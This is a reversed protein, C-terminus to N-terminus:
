GEREIADLGQRIIGGVDTKSPCAFSCLAFDEEDCELIGLREAEELDEAIVARLLFFTMLDLPVYADYINNLVIARESGHTDTDFSWAKDWNAGAPALQGPGHTDTTDFSWPKKPLFSSLFMKSFSYRNLGPVLWGLFRRRGGEPIVTIQTDHACLFGNLGVSTGTLVSGSIYRMTEKLAGKVLSAVSAGLITKAYIRNEVGEGTVAVYREPAFVGNLFLIAIRLVEQAEIYWLLDGKKIPDICHIHTSVNGSPHPGSFEHSVVGRAERLAPSQAQAHFCLHVKGPTLYRLIDLGAQFEAQKDALIFDVDLALPETNMAHVFISKPTDHPNATKSFPRQRIFPWLGGLLLHEVVRERSLNKLEDPTFRRLSVAEQMRDTQIIVHLLARKEGRALASVRGSAPSVVRIQPHTKDELLPTGVKVLDGERVVPRLKLGRFDSPQLAVQSPIPNQVLQKAAQGKIKIDRGHRIHFRSM